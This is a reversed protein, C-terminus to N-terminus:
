IKIGDKGYFYKGDAVDAATATTDTIDMLVTGGYIVKNIAM